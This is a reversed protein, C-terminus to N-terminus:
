ESIAWAFGTLVILGLIGQLYMKEFGKPNKLFYAGLRKSTVVASPNKRCINQAASVRWRKLRCIFFPPIEKGSKISQPCPLLSLLRGRHFCGASLIQVPERDPNQHQSCPEGADGAIHAVGGGPLERNKVFDDFEGGRVLHDSFPPFSQQVGEDFPRLFQLPHPDRRNGRVATKESKELLLQGRGHVDGYKSGAQHLDGQNVGHEFGPLFHPNEGNVGPREVALM